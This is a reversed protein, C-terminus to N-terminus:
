RTGRQSQLAQLESIMNDKTVIQSKLEHIADLADALQVRVKDLERKTAVHAGEIGKAIALATQLQTELSAVTTEAAMVRHAENMQNHEYDRHRGYDLAVFSFCIAVSFDHREPNRELSEDIDGNTADALRFRLREDLRAHAVENRLEGIIVRDRLENAVREVISM